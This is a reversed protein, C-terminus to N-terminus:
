RVLRLFWMEVKFVDTWELLFESCVACKCAKPMGGYM